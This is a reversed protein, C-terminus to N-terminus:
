SKRRVMDDIEAWAADNPGADAAHFPEDEWRHQHLWTSPNPVYKGGDKAWQPTRIQWDLASLMSALLTETPKLKGFKAEADGKGVKKPYAHWFRTFLSKREQDATATHLDSIPSSSGNKTVAETVTRSTASNHSHWRKGAGAKGAESKAQRFDEQDARQRELRRNILGGESSAWKDSIGPWVKGLALRSVGLIKARRGEDEPVPGKDWSWALLRIYAGLEALSMEMTGVLFDKAYFQFAPPKKM